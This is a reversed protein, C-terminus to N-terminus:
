PWGRAALSTVLQAAHDIPDGDQDVLDRWSTIHQAIEQTNHLAPLGAGIDLFQSPWGHSRSEITRTLFQRSQVALTTIAPYTERCRRGIIEDIDYYDKGGLWYNWIRASHPIDTRLLLPDADDNM